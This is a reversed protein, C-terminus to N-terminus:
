KLAEALKVFNMFTQMKHQTLLKNSDARPKCTKRERWRIKKRKTM